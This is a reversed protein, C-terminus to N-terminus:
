NNFLLGNFIMLSSNTFNTDTLQNYNQGSGCELLLLAGGNFQWLPTTYNATLTLEYFGIPNANQDVDIGSSNPLGTIAAEGTSSGKNTLVIWCTFFTIPGINYYAGIQTEYTIGTTGGAGFSLVPTWSSVASVGTMGITVTSGSASTVIPAAGAIQISNSSPTATGTNGTLSSLLDGNLSVTVTSGSAATVIPSTGAIQINGASPNATGTNGTLTDLNNGGAGGESVWNATLIGNITSFSALTWTVNTAKNVWRKGINYPGEANKVDATTPDTIAVVPIFANTSSTGVGLGYLNAGIQTM